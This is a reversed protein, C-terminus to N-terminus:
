GELSWVEEELYACSILDEIELIDLEISVKIEEEEHRDDIMNDFHTLEGGQNDEHCLMAESNMLICNQDQRRSIDKYIEEEEKVELIFKCPEDCTVGVFM